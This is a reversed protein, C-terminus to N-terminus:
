VCHRCWSRFPLHTKMHEEIEERSPLKPDAMREPKRSGAEPELEELGEGSGAPSQGDQVPQSIVGGRVGEEVEGVPRVASGGVPEGGAPSM